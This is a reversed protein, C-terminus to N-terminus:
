KEKRRGNEVSKETIGQSFQLYQRVSIKLRCPVLQVVFSKRYYYMDDM